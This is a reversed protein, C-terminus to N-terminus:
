WAHRGHGFSQFAVETSVLSDKGMPAAGQGQEKPRSFRFGDFEDPRKYVSPDRHQFLMPAGIKAGAPIVNGDAFTFTKKANRQMSVTVCRQDTRRIHSM